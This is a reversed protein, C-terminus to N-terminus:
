PEKELDIDWLDGVIQDYKEPVFKEFGGGSTFTMEGFYIKGSVEYLDVRVQRLGRCLKTVVDTMEDWVKPKEVAEDTNKYFGKQWPLLNWEMDYVNRRHDSFRGIDIRCCYPKGSFCQFKYDSLEEKGEDHMYKEAIICPEIDKYQWEAYQYYFNKKLAATLKKKAVIRDFAAKDRCIIVSGCDHNCKLVFQNPLQDFDIDDFCKWKGLLPILYQEGIRERVFERVALKDALKPYLPNRDYIKQWQIKENYTKPHDLDLKSIKKIKYVVLINLKPSLKTLIERFIRSAELKINM